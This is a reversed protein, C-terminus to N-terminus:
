LQQGGLQLAATRVGVFAHHPYKRGENFISHLYDEKKGLLSSYVNRSYKHPNFDPYREMLMSTLQDWYYDSKYIDTIVEHLILQLKLLLRMYYFFIGYPYLQIGCQEKDEFERLKQRLEPQPWWCDFKNLSKICWLHEPMKKLYACPNIILCELKPMAANGM